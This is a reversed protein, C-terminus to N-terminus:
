RKTHEFVWAAVEQKFALKEAGEPLAEIRALKEKLGFEAAQRDWEGKGEAIHQREQEIHLPCAKIEIPGGCQCQSHDHGELPLGCLCECVTPQDYGLRQAVGSCEWEHEGFDCYHRHSM